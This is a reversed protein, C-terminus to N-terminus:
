YNFDIKSYLSNKLEDMGSEQPASSQCLKQPCIKIYLDMEEDSLNNVILVDDGNIITHRLYKGHRLCYDHLCSVGVSSDNFSYNGWFTAYVFQKTKKADKFLQGTIYYKEDDGKSMHTDSVCGWINNYNIIFRDLESLESGIINTKYPAPAVKNKILDTFTIM